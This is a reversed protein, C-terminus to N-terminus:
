LSAYIHDKSKISRDDCWLCNYCKLCKGVLANFYCCMCVDLIFILSNIHWLDVCTGNCFIGFIMYGFCCLVNRNNIGYSILLKLNSTLISNLTHKHIFCGSLCNQNIALFYCRFSCKSSLFLISINIYDKSKICRCEFSSGCDNKFSQICFSFLNSDMCIKTISTLGYIKWLDTSMCLITDILYIM